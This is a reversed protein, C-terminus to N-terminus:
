KNDRSSNKVVGDLAEIVNSLGLLIIARTENDLGKIAVSNGVRHIIAAFLIKSRMFFIEGRVSSTNAAQKEQSAKVLAMVNRREVEQYAKLTLPVQRINPLEKFYEWIGASILVLDNFVPMPVDQSYGAMMSMLFPQNRHLENVIKELDSATANEIRFFIGEIRTAEQLENPTFEERDM